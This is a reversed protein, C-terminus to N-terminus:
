RGLNNIREVDETKQMESGDLTEIGFDIETGDEEVSIEATDVLSIEGEGFDIADNGFDITNLDEDGFDIGDNTATTLDDVSWEIQYLFSLLKLSIPSM